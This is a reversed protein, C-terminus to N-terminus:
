AYRDEAKAIAIRVQEMTAMDMHISISTEDVTRASLSADDVAKLAKLLEPVSGADHAVAAAVDM